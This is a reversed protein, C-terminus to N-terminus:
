SSLVHEPVGPINRLVWFAVVVGVLWWPRRLWALPRLASRPGHTAPVFARVAYSAWVWALLVLAPVFLANHRIADLVDGRALACAARTAGCVPCWLGTLQHFPCTPLWQDRAPNVVHALVLGGAGAVGLAVSVTRTDGVARRARAIASALGVGLSVAGGSMPVNSLASCGALPDPGGRRGAGIGSGPAGGAESRPPGCGISSAPALPHWECALEPSLRHPGTVSATTAGM